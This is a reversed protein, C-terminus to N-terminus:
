IGTAGAVHTHVQVKLVPLRGQGLPTAWRWPRDVPWGVVWGVRVIEGGGRWGRRLAARISDSSISDGGSEPNFWVTVAVVSRGVALVLARAHDDLLNVTCITTKDLAARVAATDRHPHPLAFGFAFEAVRVPTFGPNAPQASLPPWCQANRALVDDLSQSLELGAFGHWPDVPAPAHQAAVREGVLLLAIVLRCARARAPIM